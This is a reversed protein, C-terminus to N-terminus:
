EPPPPPPAEGDGFDEPMLPTAEKEQQASKVMKGEPPAPPRSDDASDSPKSQACGALLLFAALFVLLGKM